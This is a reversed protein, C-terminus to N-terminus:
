PRGAKGDSRRSWSRFLGKILLRLLAFGGIAAPILRAWKTRRMEESGLRIAISQSVLVAVLLWGQDFELGARATSQSWELGAWLYVAGGMLVILISMLRNFIQM